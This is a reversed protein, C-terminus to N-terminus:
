LHSWAGSGVQLGHLYQSSGAWCPAWNVQLVQPLDKFTDPVIFGASCIAQNKGLAGGAIGPTSIILLLHARRTQSCWVMGILECFSALVFCFSDYIIWLRYIISWPNWRWYYGSRSLCYLFLRQPIMYLTGQASLMAQLRSLLIPFLGEQRTFSLPKGPQHIPFRSYGRSLSFQSTPWHCSPSPLCWNIYIGESPSIGSPANKQKLLNSNPTHNKHKHATDM